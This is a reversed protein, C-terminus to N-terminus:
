PLTDFVQKQLEESFEVLDERNIMGAARMQM